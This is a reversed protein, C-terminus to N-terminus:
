VDEGALQMLLSEVVPVANGPRVYDGTVVIPGAPRTESRRPAMRRLAVRVREDSERSVEVREDHSHGTSDPRTFLVDFMSTDPRVRTEWRPRLAELLAVNFRAAEAPMDRYRDVARDWANRLPTESM